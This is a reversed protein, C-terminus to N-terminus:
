ELINAIDWYQLNVALDHPSQGRQNRAAFRVGKKLLAAVVDARNARVAVALPREADVWDAAEADAGSSMLIKITKLQNIELAPQGAGGGSGGGGCRVPRLGPRAAGCNVGVAAWMLPTWGRLDRAGVDAGRALLLSVLKAYNAGAALHLATAGYRHRVANNAVDSTLSRVL